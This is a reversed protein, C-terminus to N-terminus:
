YKEGTLRAVIDTLMAEIKPKIADEPEGEEISQTMQLTQSAVWMFLATGPDSFAKTEDPLLYAFMARGHPTLAVTASAARANREITQLPNQAGDDGRHWAARIFLTRSAFQRVVRDIEADAVLSPRRPTTAKTESM